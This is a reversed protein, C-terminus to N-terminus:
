HLNLNYMQALVVPSCLIKTTTTTTAGIRMFPDMRTLITFAFDVLFEIFDFVLPPLLIFLGHM